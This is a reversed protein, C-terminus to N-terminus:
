FLLRVGITHTNGLDASLPAFAYDLGAIGYMIGMGASFTRSTEGAQYGARLALVHLLFIEAGAHLTYTKPFYRM